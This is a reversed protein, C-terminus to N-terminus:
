RATLADALAFRRTVLFGPAFQGANLLTVVARFAAGVDAGLGGALRRAADDLHGPGREDGAEVRARGDLGAARGPQVDLQGGQV